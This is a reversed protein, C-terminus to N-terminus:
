DYPRTAHPHQSPCWLLFKGSPGTGHNMRDGANHLGRGKSKAVVHVTYPYQHTSHQGILGLAAERLTHHLVLSPIPRHPPTSVQRRMTVFTLSLHLSFYSSVSFWVQVRSTFKSGHQNERFRGRDRIVIRCSTKSTGRLGM